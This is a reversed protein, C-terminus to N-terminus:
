SPSKWDSSALSPSKWSDPSPAAAAQPALAIAALLGAATWLAFKRRASM